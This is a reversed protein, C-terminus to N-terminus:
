RDSHIQKYLWARATLWERKVTTPSTHMLDATEEITLGVFYRLEILRCAEPDISNLRELAENLILLNENHGDSLHHAEELSFNAVGAGRKSAQASRSHDVLIRRMLTAAIGFFQNRNQWKLNRVGVLRLYVEDILETPQLSQQQFDKRLYNAAIRRLEPYVHTLLLDFAHSDGDSWDNLLRTIDGSANSANKAELEIPEKKAM